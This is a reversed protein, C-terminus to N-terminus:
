ETVSCEPPSIPVGVSSDGEAKPMPYHNEIVGTNMNKPLVIKKDHLPANKYEDSKDLKRISSCGILLFILGFFVVNIKLYRM